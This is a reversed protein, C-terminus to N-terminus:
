AGYKGHNGALQLEDVLEFCRLHGIMTNLLQLIYLIPQSNTFRLDQDHNFFFTTASLSVHRVGAVTDGDCLEVVIQDSATLFLKLFGRNQASSFTAYISAQNQTKQDVYANKLESAPIGIKLLARTKYHLLLMGCRHIQEKRQREARGDRWSM